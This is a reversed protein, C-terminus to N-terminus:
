VARKREREQIKYIRDSIENKTERKWTRSQEFVRVLNFLVRVARHLFVFVLERM